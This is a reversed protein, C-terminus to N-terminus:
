QGAMAGRTELTLLAQKAKLGGAFGTLAGNAGIVRHCPAIISIPNRGNAAGVARMASPKGLSRAIDRYSRTEGFPIELLARWVRKQFDTGAFDLAVTFRKRKGAFYETLEKEAKRLIPHDDDRTMAPLKVRKPDDKPWLIAVLAKANAVLTLSGVPSPMTKFVHSMSKAGPNTM